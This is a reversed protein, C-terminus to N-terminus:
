HHWLQRIYFFKSEPKGAEFASFKM